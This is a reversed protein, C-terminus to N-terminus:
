KEEKKLKELIKEIKEAEAMRKEELFLIKPIIKIKLRQNLKQQLFYVKKSLNELFKKRKEEPWVSLFVKSERLNVTTEVRTITVLVDKPFEGERLLIQSLEKKILQNVRAIRKKM